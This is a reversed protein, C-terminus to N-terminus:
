QDFLANCLDLQRHIRHSALGVLGLLVSAVVYSLIILKKLM